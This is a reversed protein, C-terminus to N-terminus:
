WNLLRVATRFAATWMGNGHLPRCFIWMITLLCNQLFTYKGTFSGTRKQLCDYCLIQYIEM